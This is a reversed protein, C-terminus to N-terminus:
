SLLICWPWNQESLNKKEKKPIQVNIKNVPYYVEVWVRQNLKEQIFFGDGEKIVLCKYSWIGKTLLKWQGIIHIEKNICAEPLYM